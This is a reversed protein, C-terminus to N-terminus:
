PVSHLARAKTAFLLLPAAVIAYKGYREILERRSPTELPDSVGPYSDAAKDEGAQSDLKEENESM